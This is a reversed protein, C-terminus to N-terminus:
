NNRNRSQKRRQGVGKSDYKGNLNIMSNYILIVNCKIPKTIENTLHEKVTACIDDILQEKSMGKCDAENYGIPIATTQLEM